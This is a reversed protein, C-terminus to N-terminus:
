TKRTVGLVRATQSQNGGTHRMVQQILYREVLTVVEDHLKTSGAQFRDEVFRTLYSLLDHAEIPSSSTPAAVVAQLAPPLYGPVLVPGTAHLIAQKLISQLERVNGSWPYRQLLELAEPTIGEVEKGLEHSFQTVFHEALLCLDGARGRLPPLRITYINLRYYLVQRSRGETILKGLDRTTAG